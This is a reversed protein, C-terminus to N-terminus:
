VGGFYRLVSSSMLFCAVFCGFLWVVLCCVILWGVQRGCAAWMGGVHRGCAALRGVVQRGGAAGRGVM